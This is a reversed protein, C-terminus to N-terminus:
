SVMASALMVLGGFDDTGAFWKSWDATNRQPHEADLLTPLAPEGADFTRPDTLEVLEGNAALGFATQLKHSRENEMNWEHENKAEWLHKNAPLPAFILDLPTDCLAAPGFYVLM